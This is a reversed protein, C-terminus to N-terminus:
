AEARLERRLTEELLALEEARSHRRRDLRELSSLGALLSVTYRQLLTVRRQPLQADAFIRAWIRNLAGVMEGQWGGLGEAPWPPLHLLIELTSHFHPSAFHEWAHLVFLHVREALPADAPVESLRRALHAFSEELVAELIGEKAGFHHQVAGWTCGARRAIESATTRGFGQEAISEVVAALIRERTAATREAQTRRRPRRPLRVRHAEAVSRDESAQPERRAAQPPEGRARKRSRL